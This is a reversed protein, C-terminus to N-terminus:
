KIDNDMDFIIPISYRSYLESIRCQDSPVPDGKNDNTDSIRNNSQAQCEEWFLCEDLNAAKFTWGALFM